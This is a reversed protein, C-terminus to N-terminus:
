WVGYDGIRRAVANAGVILAFAVVNRFLGVATSLGYRLEVLGVRYVYTGIVDGVSYVAENYLNFIQDFDDQVITRLSLLLMITIVPALSPLTVYRIRHWRSAGDIVAAEYLEPDVGALAALYIISGWGIEKWVSTIVLVGRFTAADALFYVPKLGAAAIVANVPGFSPSLLQKFLGGLVVWSLFHPLYSITQAVRKFRISRLENLLIALIIPAPFGFLLKLTSIVLTNRFVEWFSGLAFADRFNEWGVWPSGWIGKLFFYDRFAIQVGYIPVYHFLVYYALGPLFM